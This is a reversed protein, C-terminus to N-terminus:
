VCNVGASIVFDTKLCLLDSINKSKPAIIHLVVYAFSLIYVLCNLINFKFGKPKELFFMSLTCRFLLSIQKLADLFTLLASKEFNM